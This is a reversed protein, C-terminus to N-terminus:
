DPNEDGPRLPSITWEETRLIRKEDADFEPHYHHAHPSPFHVQKSETLGASNLVAIFRDLPGYAYIVNHRDYVLM